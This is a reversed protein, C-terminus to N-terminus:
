FICLKFDGHNEGYDGLSLIFILLIIFKLLKVEMLDMNELKWKLVNLVFLKKKSDRLSAINLKM